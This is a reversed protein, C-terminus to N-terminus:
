GTRKSFRRIIKEEDIVPVYIVKAYCGLRLRERLSRSGEMYLHNHNLAKACWSAGKWGRVRFMAHRASQVLGSCLALFFGTLNWQSPGKHEHCGPERGIFASTYRRIDSLGYPRSNLTVLFVLFLEAPM